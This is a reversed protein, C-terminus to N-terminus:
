WKRRLNGWFSSPKHYTYKSVSTNRGYRNKVDIDQAEIIHGEKKLVCVTAALRTNGLDRIAELSPITKHENLYELLRTKHTERM